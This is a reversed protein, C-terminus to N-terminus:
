NLRVAWISGQIAGSGQTGSNLAANLYYTVAGSSSSTTILLGSSCVGLSAALARMKTSGLTTGSSSASTTGLYFDVVATSSGAGDMSGTAMVLWNGATLALSGLETISTTVTIAAGVAASLVEGVKGAGAPSGSTVGTLIAASLTPATAFVLAGSGTEDSIVGALEASTTAAFASLKNETYAATGGAGFAVSSSDTGTFTLTNSATLTKGDAITLTAASAPATFAVKNISTASAVGLVPTVLTPTNAFVLAGSGTEDSIVGALEASTTAAFVSLKNATYTVTGGTGFAVSSSDTGTFTLTNSATLTKGDAITLTASSAPATFAVKNISTATAVGLVPTVLTPSTAFVAAGSGTEDTLATALNASTFSGLSTANGVSTVAGTLNANTIVNGATFGTGTGTINSGVLTSPTGLNPTVLVPSTAFVLAGSGTEDNIVGALESSSTAAFVSLKNSTYTVTGGTGFAVSSSDTGTFTLTNSATLTKGDAVTLTSGSAPATITVKNITTASAVGLTPTVLTPATSLVVSGSGTSTTTGTGGNAVPLATGSLSLALTGSTTIPSGSVSLFSPVTMAVSTVSGTGVVVQWSATSASTAIPIYGVSPTGSITIGGVATSNAALTANGATLGAATGTINTGVLTTPTGLHLADAYVNITGIPQEESGINLTGGEGSGGIDPDETQIQIDTISRLHAVQNTDVQLLSGLNDIRRLNYVADPLMDSSIRLKLNSSLTTTAM